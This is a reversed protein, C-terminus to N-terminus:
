KLHDKILRKLEDIHQQKDAAMKEWLKKCDECNDADRLYQNKIRWLSKNEQVMQAMLNYLHNDLM